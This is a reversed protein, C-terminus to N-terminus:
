RAGEGSRTQRYPYRKEYLQLRKKLGQVLEEPGQELALKFGKKAASVANDFSGMEAYAAALSDLALPQKYQTIKCLSKALKLADKGNRYKVDLHTALIWSLNYLAQTMHPNIYLTKRYYLIANEIKEQNGFIKGLNYYAGAYDPNIRIAEFFHSVAEKDNGKRALVVGLNNHAITNNPEIRLAEHFHRIAADYNGLERLAVGLSLHTSMFDPRIRLSESYHKIASDMKGQAALAEGLKGYAVYNNETVDAANQFLTMSNRWKGAQFGTCIMLASLVFVSSLALIKKKYRWKGLIDPVGWAIIIFLGILPVYTYRDAMTQLGVQLLGIVPILTGLFWFWGVAFYPKTKVMRFVIVTIVGLLLGAGVVQWYIIAKPYPYLVALNHPWIMKRIYSVYSIIANGIRVHFPIVALTSMAGSSKQVMYTIVSSGASLFFLPLKEWVMGFYFSRPRCEQGDEPSGLQFRRLPWYDLLLLLFPLTVLMPKTMLGLIFFFLVPLYRNLGSREVYRLYSWLTLVWFFTSLVDKREALWAVSEVHLPHLAFLAAVFGSQWIDKSMRKFVFFLLLTNLIHLLVNTLHQQGPNMGYIRCDLMHSLWTLPHWNSAHTSTFAWTISELTLGTQVHSNSSVYLDDDYNIFDHNRVQWYVSLIAIVLFLCVLLDSRIQLRNNKNAINDNMFPHTCHRYIHFFDPEVVPNSM